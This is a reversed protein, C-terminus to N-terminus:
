GVVQSKNQEIIRMMSQSFPAQYSDKYMGRLKFDKPVEIRKLTGISSISLKRADSEGFLNKRIEQYVQDCIILNKLVVCSKNLYDVVDLSLNTSNILVTELSYNRIKKWEEDKILGSYPNPQCVMGQNDFVCSSIRSSRLVPLLGRVDVRPCYHVSVKELGSDFKVVLYTLNNSDLQPLNVCSLNEVLGGLHDAWSFDTIRFCNNLVLQGIRQDGGEGWNHFMLGLMEGDVRFDQSIDVMKRQTFMKEVRRKLLSLSESQDGIQYNQDYPMLEDPLGNLEEESLPLDKDLDNIKKPIRFLGLVRRSGRQIVQLLDSGFFELRSESKTQQEVEAQEKEPDVKESSVIVRDKGDGEEVRDALVLIKNELLYFGYITEFLAILHKQNDSVDMRIGYLYVLNDLSVEPVVIGDQSSIRETESTIMEQLNHYFIWAHSKPLNYFMWRKLRKEVQSM